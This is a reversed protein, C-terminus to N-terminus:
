WQEDGALAIAFYSWGEGEENNPRTSLMDTKPTFVASREDSEYLTVVPRALNGTASLIFLIPRDSREKEEIRIRM